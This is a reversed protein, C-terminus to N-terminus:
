VSQQIYFSNLEANKWCLAVAIISSLRVIRLAELCSNFIPRHAALLSCVNGIKSRQASLFNFSMTSEMYMKISTYSVYLATSFLTPLIAQSLITDAADVTHGRMINLFFKIIEPKVSYKIRPFSARSIMLSCFM